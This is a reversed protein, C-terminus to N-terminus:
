QNMNEAAQPLSAEVLDHLTTIGYRAPAGTEQVLEPNMKGDKLYEKGMLNQHWIIFKDFVPTEVGALEGINRLIMLGFPIDETFFRCNVNPIVQGNGADVVPTKVTAYGRNTNFINKLSSKDAVDTGYHEVIREGLDKVGSLDLQPYKAELAKRVKQLEDSLDQLQQASFDDLQEYLLPISTADYTKKGDWDKFIGYYRGPHIIQNSPVMTLCMFNPIPACPIDFLQEVLKTVTSVREIPSAAAYLLKKPGIMKCEKGYVLARCIWPIFQLGFLTINLDKIRQAGIAQKAAWDFGGQAYLAGVFAGKKVYPAIQQLLPPNAHAPGGLIFVDAEPAVDAPNSSVKDIKGIVKTMETEANKRCWVAIGGQEDIGEQWKQPQRTLVSVIFGPKTGIYGAAVHSGNGGGCICVRIPKDTNM